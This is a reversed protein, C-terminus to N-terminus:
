PFIVRAAPDPVNNASAPNVAPVYAAGCNKCAGCVELGSHFDPSEVGLGFPDTQNLVVVGFEPVSILTFNYLEDVALKVATVDLIYALM